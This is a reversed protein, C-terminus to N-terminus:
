LSTFSLPRLPNPFDGGLLSSFLTLYHPSLVDLPLSNPAPPCRTGLGSPLAQTAALLSEPHTHGPSPTLPFTGVSRIRGWQRM